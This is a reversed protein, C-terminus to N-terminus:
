GSKCLSKHKNESFLVTQVAGSLVSYLTGGNEFDQGFFYQRKGTADKSPLAAQIKAFPVTTSFLPGKDQAFNEIGRRCCCSLWPNSFFVLCHKKM